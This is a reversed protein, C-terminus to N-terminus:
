QTVHTQMIRFTRANMKVEAIIQNQVENFNEIKWSQPRTRVQRNIKQQNGIYVFWFIHMKHSKIPHICAM